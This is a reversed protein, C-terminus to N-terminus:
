FQIAKSDNINYVATNQLSRWGHFLRLLQIKTIANMVDEGVSDFRLAAMKHTTIIALYSTHMERIVLIITSIKLVLRKPSSVVMYKKNM